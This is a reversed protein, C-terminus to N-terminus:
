EEQREEIEAPYDKEITDPNEHYLKFRGAFIGIAGLVILLVGRLAYPLTLLYVGGVILLISLFVMLKFFRVKNSAM